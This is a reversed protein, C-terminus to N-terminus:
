GEFHDEFVPSVTGSSATTFSWVPGEKVGGKGDKAVVKWYYKTNPNLNELTYMM